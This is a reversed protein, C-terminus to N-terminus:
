EGANWKRWRGWKVTEGDTPHKAANAHEMPFPRPAGRTLIDDGSDMGLEDNDDDEEVDSDVIKAKAASSLPSLDPFQRRKHKARTPSALPSICPFSSSKEVRKDAVPSVGDMPFERIKRKREGKHALRSRLPKAIVCERAETPQARCPDAPPPRLLATPSRDHLPRTRSSVAALAKSETQVQARSRNSNPQHRVSSPQRVPLLTQSQSHLRITQPHQAKIKNIKPSSSKPKHDKTIRCSNAM